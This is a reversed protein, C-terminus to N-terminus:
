SCTVETAATFTGQPFNTESGTSVTIGLDLQDSSGTTYTTSATNGSFTLSGKASTSAVTTFTPVIEGLDPATSFATPGSIVMTPQGTYTFSLQAGTGGVHSTSLKTPDIVNSGFEGPTVSTFTCQNVVEGTTDVSVAHAAGVGLSLAVALLSKKM